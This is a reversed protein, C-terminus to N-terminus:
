RREVKVGGNTTQLRIPAGGKGIDTSISRKWEGQVTVPFDVSLGGNTTGAELHASYGDPVSLRVGGNTTRVDLGEGNWSDGDLEVTVGGNTTRGRVDGAVRVLALGGNSTDAALRGRVDSVKIGGNATRLDLDSAQPVSLEFSVSWSQRHANRPGESRIEGGDTLVQVQRLLADAAEQTDAQTVVVARLQIDARNAGAVTIGGNPSANVVLKESAPLTLDRVECASPRDSRHRACPDGGQAFASASCLLLGAMGTLVLRRSTMTM